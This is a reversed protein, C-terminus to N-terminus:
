QIVFDHPKSPIWRGALALERCIGVCFCMWTLKFIELSPSEVPRTLRDLARDGEFHLLKEEHKQPVEQTRTQAREGQETVLCCHLSGPGM